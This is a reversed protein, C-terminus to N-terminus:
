RPSLAVLFTASGTGTVDTVTRVYRNITTGVAMFKREAVVATASTFSVLDAWTSNDTSHQIKVGVSTFGSYATLHLVAVGGNTTASSAGRDVSTGNVDATEATLGHALFGMDVSEDASATMTFGVAENVAGDITHESLDGLVTAAFAGLDTGYPCITALFSNDVGVAAAIEAHLERDVSDQPGRLSLSGAMLGPVFRAGEDTAATVEGMARSHSLTWGAVTNSVHKTNVLVRVQNGRAFTM